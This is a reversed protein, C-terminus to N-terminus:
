LKFMTKLIVAFPSDENNIVFNRTAQNNIIKGNAVAWKICMDVNWYGRRSRAGSLGSTARSSESIDREISPWIGILEAVIAEKKWINGEGFTQSNSSQKAIFNNKSPMGDPMAALYRDIWSHYKLGKDKAIALWLMLPRPNSETNAVDEFARQLRKYDDPYTETNFVELPNLQEDHPNFQCLLM